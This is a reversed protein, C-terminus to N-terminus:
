VAGAVPDTFLRSVSNVVFPLGALATSAGLSKTYFPILAEAGATAISHIATCLLFVFYPAKDIV